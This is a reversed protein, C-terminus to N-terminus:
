SKQPIDGIRKRYQYWNFKEPYPLQFETAWFSLISDIPVANKWPIFEDLDDWLQKYNCVIVEPARPFSNSRYTESMEKTPHAEWQIVLGKPNMETPFIFVDCRAKTNRETLEAYSYVGALRALYRSFAIAGFHWWSTNVHRAETENEPPLLLINWEFGAEEVIDKREQRTLGIM